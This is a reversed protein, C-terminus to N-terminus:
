ERLPLQVVFTVGGAANHEVSITGHHAEVIKACIQLGLGSGPNAGSRSHEVQYFRQFIKPIEEDPIGIGSDKIRYEFAGPQRMLSLAVTM